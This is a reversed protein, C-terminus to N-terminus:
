LRKLAKMYSTIDHLDEKGLQDQKFYPMVGLGHRIQFRKVFSPVNLPNLAPGLGGEGSPHCKDCYTMYLVEGNRMHIDSTEVVKGTLPESHRIKCSVLANSLIAISIIISCISILKKM